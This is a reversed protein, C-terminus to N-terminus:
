KRLRELILPVFDHLVDAHVVYGLNMMSPTLPINETSTQIPRVEIKGAVTYTPGGWLLGLLRAKGGSVPNDEFLFVPSGSSGPFCAIDVVFERRGNWRLLAHSGTIGRRAIPRNHYEDWLANPCGLMVVTEIPRLALREAQSLLMGKDICFNKLHFGKKIPPLWALMPMICVDVEDDPHRLVARQIDTIVVDWHEEGDVTGDNRPSGGIPMLTFRVHMESAGDMVHKNTVLAPITQREGKKNPNEVEFEYHFGTGTAVGNQTNCRIRVTSLSLGTIPHYTQASM